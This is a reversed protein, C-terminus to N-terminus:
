LTYLYDVIADIEQETLIGFEGFPPMMAYPRFKPQNWVNERLVGRDPFRAKMAVLPVAVDGSMDAEPLMHCSICNGRSTDFALQQGESM